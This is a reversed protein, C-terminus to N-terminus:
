SGATPATRRKPRGRCGGRRDGAGGVGDEERAARAARREPRWDDGRMPLVGCM